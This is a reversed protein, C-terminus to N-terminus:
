PKEWERQNRLRRARARAETLTLDGGGRSGLRGQV